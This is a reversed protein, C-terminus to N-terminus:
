VELLVLDGVSADHAHAIVAEHTHSIPLAFNCDADDGYYCRMAIDHMEAAEIETDFYGIFHSRGNWSISTAWRASGKRRFVGKFRSSPIRKKPPTWTNSYTDRPFNTYAFEGFYYLAARDYEKAADEESSFYGLAVPTGNDNIRASWAKIHKHWTIGKYESYINTRRARRNHSNQMATAPRLNDRQNNLGDHDIHDIVLASPLGLIAHPMGLHGRTKGTRISRTAYWTTSDQYASWKWQMLWDYDANDVQAFQGQTLPILKMDRGILTQGTSNVPAADLEHM